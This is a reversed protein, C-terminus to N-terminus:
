LFNSPNRGTLPPQPAPVRSAGQAGLRRMTAARKLNGFTYLCLCLGLLVEPVESGQPSYDWYDMLLRPLNVPTWYDGVRWIIIMVLAPALVISPLVFDASTVKGRHHWIARLIGGSLGLLGGWFFLFFIASDSSGLNHLNTEGQVNVESLLAPTGWDFLRQGWSVEEMAGLFFVAALLLQVWSLYRHGLRHLLWATAGAMSTAALYSAVSWWESIGDEGELWDVNEYATLVWHAALSFALISGLAISFPLGRRDASLPLPVFLRHATRSFLAMLYTRLRFIGLPLTISGIILGSWGWVRVGAHFSRVESDSFPDAEPQFAEALRVLHDFAAGPLVLLM